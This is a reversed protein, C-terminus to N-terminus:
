SILKSIGFTYIIKIYEVLWMRENIHDNLYHTHSKIMNLLTTFYFQIIIYFKKVSDTM